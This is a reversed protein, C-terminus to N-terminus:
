MEPPRSSASLRAQILAGCRKPMALTSIAVRRENRDAATQHASKAM